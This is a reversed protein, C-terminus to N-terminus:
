SRPLTLLVKCHLSSVSCNLASYISSCPAEQNQQHRNVVREWNHLGTFFTFRNLDCLIATWWSSIHLPVSHLLDAEASRGDGVLMGGGAPVAAATAAAAAVPATTSTTSTRTSSVSSSRSTVPPKGKCTQQERERGKRQVPKESKLCDLSALWNEM